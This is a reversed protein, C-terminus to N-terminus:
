AAQIAELDETLILDPEDTSIGEPNPMNMLCRCTYFQGINKVTQVRHGAGTEDTFEEGPRPYESLASVKIRIESSDRPDFDPTRVVRDFPDRNVVARVFESRFILTEGNNALLVNFGTELSRQLPNM